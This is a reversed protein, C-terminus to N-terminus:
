FQRILAYIEVSNGNFFLSGAKNILTFAQPSRVLWRLIYLSFRKKRAYWMSQAQWDLPKDEWKRISIPRSLGPTLAFPILWGFYETLGSYAQRMRSDALPTYRQNILASCCAHRHLSPVPRAVHLYLFYELEIRLCPPFSFRSPTRFFLSASTSHSDLM